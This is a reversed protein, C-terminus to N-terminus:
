EYGVFVFPNGYSRDKEILKGVYRERIEEPARTGIFEWRANNIRETSLIDPRTFYAQTGAPVWSHITYVDKVVGNFTAYALKAERKECATKMNKAWIGRTSEFIEMYGFHPKYDKNILIAIGRHETKVKVTKDLLIHTLENLPVRKINNGKGRVLNELNDIGMLDICASEIDLATQASLNYALIDIGLRNERILDNIKQSKSNLPDKIGKLHAFFRDSKGKGVYIPIRRNEEDIECYVYVYFKLDRLFKTKESGSLPLLMRKFKNINMLVSM